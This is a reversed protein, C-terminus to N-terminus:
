LESEDEFNNSCIGRNIPANEVGLKLCINNKIAQGYLDLWNEPNPAPIQIPVGDEGEVEYSDLGNFAEQVLPTLREIKHTYLADVAKQPDLLKRALLLKTIQYPLNPLRHYCGKHMFFASNCAHLYVDKNLELIKYRLDKPLRPCIRHLICLRTFTLKQSRELESLERYPVFISEALLTECVSFHCFKSKGLPTDHFSGKIELSAGRELLLKCLSIHGGTAAWHLATEFTYKGSANVEAGNDLLIRCLPENDLEASKSLPPGDNESANLDVGQELCARVEEINNNIVANMLRVHLPNPSTNLDSLDFPDSYKEVKSLDLRMAFSSISYLFSILLLKRM